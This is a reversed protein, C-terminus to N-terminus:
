VELMSECLSYIYKPSFNDLSFEYKLQTKSSDLLEMCRKLCLNAKDKKGIDKLVMGHYFSTPWFDTQFIESTSFLKEAIEKNDAHYELYGQLFYYFCKEEVNKIEEIIEKAKEFNQSNIEGCVKNFYVQKDVKINENVTKIEVTRRKKDNNEKIQAIRKELLNKKGEALHRKENKNEPNIGKLYFYVSDLNTKYMSDPIITDDLCGIENMSFFLYGQDKLVSDVKKSIKVRTEKSFYIFVNRLFVIDIKDLFPLESDEKLNYKFVQIRNKIEQNFVYKDGEKVYYPSLLEHYKKGDPRFSYQTYTGNKVRSVANDDIDTAFVQADINCSLALALLSLAEEGSSCAASWINMKKGAYKPFIYNKLIDFQKEERFFYTENVTINNILHPFDNHKSSLSDCYDELTQDANKAFEEIAKWLNNKQSEAIKIGSFDYLKQQITELLDERM